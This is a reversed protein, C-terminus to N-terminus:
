AVDQNKNIETKADMVIEPLTMSVSSGQFTSATKVRPSKAM